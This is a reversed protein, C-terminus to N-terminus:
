SDNKLPESLTLSVGLPRVALLVSMVVWPNQSGASLKRQRMLVVELEGCTAGYWGPISFVPKTEAWSQALHPPFLPCAHWRQRDVPWGPRPSLLGQLDWAVQPLTLDCTFFKSASLSTSFGTSHSMLNLRHRVDWILVLELGLQKM